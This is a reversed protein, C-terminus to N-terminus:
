LDTVPGILNIINNGNSASSTAHNLAKAQTAQQAAPNNLLAESSTSANRSSNNSSGSHHAHQQPQAHYIQQLHAHHLTTAPATAEPMPLHTADSSHQTGIISSQLKMVM